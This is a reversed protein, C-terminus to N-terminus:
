IWDDNIPAIKEKKKKYFTENRLYKTKLLPCIKYREDKTDEYLASLTEFVESIGIKDCWEFPGYPYNTGLKMALDIDEISATGEQLTYCAENIIMFIIRPKVMGVRDEITIYEIGFLKMLVDLEPTEFKRYLSVEWKNQSIFGPLANIGFLRCKVKTDSAYVAEALSLKVASLFVPREKLSYYTSANTPDDDFNLDFIVDYDKYDEDEDGDSFDIELSQNVALRARLEDARDKEGVLLIKM